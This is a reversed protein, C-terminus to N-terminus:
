LVCGEGFKPPHTKYDSFYSLVRFGRSMEVIKVADEGPTSQMELGSEESMGLFYSM